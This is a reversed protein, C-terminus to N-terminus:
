PSVLDHFVPRVADNTLPLALCQPCARELVKAPTGNDRDNHLNAPPSSYLPPFDAGQIHPIVPAPKLTKALGIIKNRLEADEPHSRFDAMYAALQKRGAADAAQQRLPGAPKATQAPTPVAIGCLLLAFLVGAFRLKAKMTGKTM